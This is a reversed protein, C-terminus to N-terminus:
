GYDLSWNLPKLYSAKSECSYLAPEVELQYINEAQTEYYKGGLM